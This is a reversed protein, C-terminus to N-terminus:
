LQQCTPVGPLPQRCHETYGPCVARLASSSSSGSIYPPHEDASARAGFLVSRSGAVHRVRGLLICVFM